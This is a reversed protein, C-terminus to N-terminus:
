RRRWEVMRRDGAPSEGPRREGPRREGDRIDDAPATESHVESM